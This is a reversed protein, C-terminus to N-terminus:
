LALTHDRGCSVQHAAQNTPLKVQVPTNRSAAISELQDGRGLQGSRGRGFVWLSGHASTCVTHGGGCAVHVIGLGDLESIKRPINQDDPTGLGLQGDKGLGWTFVEGSATLAASHYEGAAVQVVQLGNLATVPLPTRQYRMSGAVGLQGYDNAGWAYVVGEKTLALTYERGCAAQVVTEKALASVVKPRDVNSRDGHGLAGEHGLGWAYMQGDNTIAVSHQRGCAVAQVKGRLEVVENPFGRRDNAHGLQPSGHRGWSFLRCDTTLAMMHYEGIVVKEFLVNPVHLLQPTSVNPTDIADGHGLRASGGAGFTYVHGDTTVIASSNGGCAVSRPAPDLKVPTPTPLDVEHGQGLQGFGNSGWSFARGKSPPPPASKNYACSTAAAAMLPMTVSRVASRFMGM